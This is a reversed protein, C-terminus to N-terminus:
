SIVLYRFFFPYCSLLLWFLNFYLIFYLISFWLWPVSLILLLFDLVAVFLVSNVNCIVREGLPSYGYVWGRGWLPSLMCGVLDRLPSYGYVLKGVPFVMIMEGVRERLSSYGYILKGLLFVMVIKGVREM